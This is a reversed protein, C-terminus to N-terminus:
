ANQVKASFLNLAEQYHFIDGFIGNPANAGATPFSMHDSCHPETCNRETGSFASSSYNLNEYQPHQVRQYYGDVPFGLFGNDSNSYKVYNEDNEQKISLPLSAFPKICSPQLPESKTAPPPQAAAATTKPKPFFGHIVEQLLGSDSRETPFFEMSDDDAFPAASIPNDFGVDSVITSDVTAARPTLSSSGMFDNPTAPFNLPIQDYNFSSPESFKTTTTSNLYDRLLLMNISNSGSRYSPGNFDLNPNAFSSPPAFSHRHHNGGGLISPQSSSKAYTVFSPLLNEAATPYLHHHHHPPPPSTPYVFNTRAKVGRMARAACDYACAAEEATDFTGLWRREKSQPDRIEAAYRGWPRRRVGRYRMTGASSPAPPGDKLSRKTAASCRKPVATPPLLPDSDRTLSGNLRRLAEEM